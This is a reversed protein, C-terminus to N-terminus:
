SGDRNTKENRLMWRSYNNCLWCPASRGGVCQGNFSHLCNHCSRDIMKNKLIRGKAPLYKGVTKEEVPAVTRIRLGGM